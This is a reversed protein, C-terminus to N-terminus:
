FILHNGIIAKKKKILFASLCKSDFYWKTFVIWQGKAIRVYIHQLEFEYYLVDFALKRVLSQGRKPVINDVIMTTGGALAARTGAAFDDALPQSDDELQDHLSTSFDIGGPMVFKDSADIM